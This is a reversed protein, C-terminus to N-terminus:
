DDPHSYVAAARWADSDSFNSQEVFDKVLDGVKIVGSALVRANIGGHGRMAHYGRPGLAADMRLCPHCLGTGELMAEGIIFKKKVLAQLNIGEVVLNRRLLEPQVEEIGALSGIVPLHEKQILTVQRKGGVQHGARDNELGHDKVLRARQM